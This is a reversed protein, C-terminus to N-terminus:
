LYERMREINEQEFAVLEQALEVAEDTALGNHKIAKWMNTIGRSSNQIVMEALHGRSVNLATGAHIGGRLLLEEIRSERRADGEGQLIRDLAKNHIESYRLSQRSLQLSFDDNEAKDLIADLATMGLAANHQVEQLIKADDHKMATEKRMIVVFIFLM